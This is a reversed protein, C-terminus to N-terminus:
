NTWRDPIEFCGNEIKTGFEQRDKIFARYFDADILAPTGVLVQNKKEDPKLYIRGLNYGDSSNDPWGGWKYDILGKYLEENNFTPPTPFLVAAEILCYLKETDADLFGNRRAPDEKLSSGRLHDEIDMKGDLGYINQERVHAFLTGEMAMLPHVGINEWRPSLAKNPNIVSRDFGGFGSEKLIREMEEAMFREQKRFKESHERITGSYSGSSNLEKCEKECQLFGQVFNNTQEFLEPKVPLAMSDQSFKPVLMYHQEGLAHFVRNGATLNFTQLSITKKGFNYSM